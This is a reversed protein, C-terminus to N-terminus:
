RFGQILDLPIGPTQGITLDTTAITTVTTRVMLLVLGATPHLISDGIMFRHGLDERDRSNQVVVTKEVATGVVDLPDDDLLVVARIGAVENGLHLAETEERGTSPFPQVHRLCPAVADVRLLVELGKDNQRLVTQHSTEAFGPPNEISPRLLIPTGIVERHYPNTRIQAAVTTSVRLDLPFRLILDGQLLIV